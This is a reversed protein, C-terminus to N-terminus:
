PAGPWTLVKYLWAAGWLTGALVATRPRLLPALATVARSGTAAAHGGVWVACACGLALVGAFPQAQVSEWLNGSAAHAFATTMGCSPCPKGYMVVWGCPPLGLQRHTGHGAPDARLTAAVILLALSGGSV